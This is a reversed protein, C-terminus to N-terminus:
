KQRRWEQRPRSNVVRAPSFLIHSNPLGHKPVHLAIREFAGHENLRHHNRPVGNTMPM